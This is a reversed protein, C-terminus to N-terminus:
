SFLYVRGHSVRLQHMEHGKTLGQLFLSDGSDAHSTVTPEEQQAIKLINKASSHAPSDM